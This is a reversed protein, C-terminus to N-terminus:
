STVLWKAESEMMGMEIPDVFHFQHVEEIEQLEGLLEQVYSMGFGTEQCGAYAEGAYLAMTSGKQLVILQGCDPCTAQYETPEIKRGDVDVGEGTEDVGDWATPRAWIRETRGGEVLAFEKLDYASIM